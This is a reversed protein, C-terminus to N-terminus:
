ALLELKAYKAILHKTGARAFSVSVKLRDGSGQVEVVRGPGFMPHFVGTGAVLDDLPAPQGTGRASADVPAHGTPKRRAKPTGRGTRGAM